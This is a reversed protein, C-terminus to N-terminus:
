RSGFLRFAYEVNALTDPHLKWLWVAYVVFAVTGAAVDGAWRSGVVAAAPSVLVHFAVVALAFGGFYVLARRYFPIGALERTWGVWVWAAFAVLIVRALAAGAAGTPLGPVVGPILVALAGLYVVFRAVNVPIFRAVEDQAQLVFTYPNIVTAALAALVLLRLAPTAAVFSPGYLADLLPEATVWIVVALATSLFLLKDLGSFFLRRAQRDREPTREAYLSSLRTFMLMGPPAMVGSLAEFLGRAVHYYGAATLGAWRGVLVRDISDQVLAIPTTILFPRAFRWYGALSDWSPPRPRVGGTALVGAAVMLTLGSELVFMAAVWAVSPAVVLVIATAVLRMIRMSLLIAGHTVVRERVIFVQMFVDALRSAVQSGLMFAFVHAGAPAGALAGAQWMGLMVLGLLVSLAGQILAMTGLCRGTDEGEALRKLHARAFGPLAAAMVLGALGLNFALAGVAAPGLVRGILV